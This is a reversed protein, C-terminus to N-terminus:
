AQPQYKRHQTDTGYTQFLLKSEALVVQRHWVGKPVICSQSPHLSSTVERDGELFVIDIRGSLLTLTEDGSPHMEWDTDKVMVIGGVFVGDIVKFPTFMPQKMLEDRDRTFFSLVKAMSVSITERLKTVVENGETDM